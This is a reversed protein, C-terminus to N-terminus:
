FYYEPYGAIKLTDVMLLKVRVCNGESSINPSEKNDKSSPKHTFENSNLMEIFELQSTCNLLRKITQQDPTLLYQIHELQNAEKGEENVLYHKLAFYELYLIYNQCKYPKSSTSILQGKEIRDKEVEIYEDTKPQLKTKYIISKNDDWTLPFDWYYPFYLEDMDIWYYDETPSLEPFLEDMLKVVDQTIKGKKDFFTIHISKGQITNQYVTECQSIKLSSQTWKAGSESTKIIEFNQNEYFVNMKDDKPLENLTNTDEENLFFEHYQQTDAHNGNQEDNSDNKDEEAIKIKWIPNHTVFLSQSKISLDTSKDYNIIDKDLANEDNCEGNAKSDSSLCIGIIDTFKADIDEGEGELNDEKKNKEKLDIYAICEKEDSLNLKKETLLIKKNSIRNERLCNLLWILSNSSLQMNEMNMMELKLFSLKETYISLIHRAHVM